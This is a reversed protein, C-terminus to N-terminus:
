ESVEVCEISVQFDDYVRAGTLVDSEINSQSLLKRSKASPKSQQQSRLYRQYCPSQGRSGCCCWSGVFEAAGVTALTEPYGETETEGKAETSQDIGQFVM